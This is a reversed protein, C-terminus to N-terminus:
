KKYNYILIDTNFVPNCNSIVISLTTVNIVAKDGIIKVINKRKFEANFKSILPKKHSKPKSTVSIIRKANRAINFCSFGELYALILKLKDQKGFYINKHRNEKGFAGSVVTAAGFGMIIGYLVGVFISVM